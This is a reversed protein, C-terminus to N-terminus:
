PKILNFVYKKFFKVERNRLVHGFIIIFIFYLVVGLVLNLIYPLSFTYMKIFFICLFTLTVPVLPKIIDKIILIISVNLIKSQQNLFIATSFYLAIVTGYLIMYDGFKLTILLFIIGILANYSEFIFIQKTKGVSKVINKVFSSVLLAGGGICLISLVKDGEIWKPGLILRIIERSYISIFFFISFGILYLRRSFRRVFITLERQRDMRTMIPFLVGQMLSNIINTPIQQIKNSQTYLGSFRLSSVKPFILLFVNTYVNYILKSYLLNGGFEWQELFSIKSFKLKPIYRNYYFQFIVVLMCYIINQLVLAWIEFGLFAFIISFSLAILSSLISVKSLEKFKLEKYLIISQVKGVASIVISIGIASLIKGVNHIGYFKEVLPSFLLILAYLIISVVINYIFLTSYDIDDVTTKRLLSGGMGSDVVVQSLNIFFLAIGILAFSEPLILRSLVMIAVSQMIVVSFRDAMTWFLGRKLHKSNDEM